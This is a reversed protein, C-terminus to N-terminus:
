IEQYKEFIEDGILIPHSNSSSMKYINIFDLDPFSSENAPLKINEYVTTKIIGDLDDCSGTLYSQQLILNNVRNYISYFFPLEKDVSYCYKVSCNSKVVNAITAIIGNCLNTIVVCKSILKDREGSYYSCIGGILSKDNCVISGRMICNTINHKSYGIIGGIYNAYQSTLKIVGLYILNNLILNIDNSSEATSGIIGGIFHASHANVEVTVNSVINSIEVSNSSIIGGVLSGAYKSTCKLNGNLRLNNIDTKDVLKSFLGSYEESSNINYNISHNNGNFKGYFNFPILNELILDNMLNYTIGLDEKINYFDSETYVNYPRNISSCLPKYTKDFMIIKLIDGDNIRNYSYNKVVDLNSNASIECIEFDVDYQKEDYYHAISIIVKQVENSTNELTCSFIINNTGIIPIDVIDGNDYKLSKNIINIDTM